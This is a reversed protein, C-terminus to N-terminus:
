KLDGWNNGISINVKLPVGLENDELFRQITPIIENIIDSKIEFLLEDHIQVNLKVFDLLQNEKLYDFIKVMSIKILDAALGQFPMNIAIREQDAGERSQVGIFPLFRKRGFLTECYGKAKANDKLTDIYDKLKYYHIFYDEIYKTAEEKSIGATQAFAKPGMGYVIGFNLAKVKSRQDKTVKDYPVDFILSATYTHFDKGEKFSKLMANDQSLFAAIRLEMQSYDFSVFLYGPSPIFAKRVLTGYDKRTPINQLNPSDSSLRGTATGTQQFIAHIKQDKSSIFSPLPLIFATVLKNLERYKLILDIIPHENKIKELEISNTSVAKSVSTKALGKTNIKLVNFLIDTLQKPSNINFEQGALKYIEKELKQIQPKLDDLLTELYKKDLGIGNEEMNALV